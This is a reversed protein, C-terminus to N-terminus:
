SSVLELIADVVHETGPTPIKVCARQALSEALNQDELLSALREVATAVDTATLAVGEVELARLETMDRSGYPSLAVTPVGHHLLELVTVGYVALAYGSGEMLPRLDDIGHFVEWHLQPRYPIKPESALPGVVWRVYTGQPLRDDLAQPLVQGLGAADSGGTVVLVPASPDTQALRRRPQILLHDWGWRVPVGGSALRAQQEEELGFSPVILLDVGAQPGDIAVVTTGRHRLESLSAGLWDTQLRPPLDIVLLSDRLEALTDSVSAESPDGELDVRTVSVGSRNVLAMAVRDARKRHGIGSTVGSASVVTARIM